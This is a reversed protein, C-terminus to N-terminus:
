VFSKLATKMPYYGTLEPSLTAPTMPNQLTATLKHDVIDILGTVGFSVVPTGCALSESATQGFAEQRSIKLL